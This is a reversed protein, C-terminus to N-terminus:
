VTKKFRQTSSLQRTNTNKDKAVSSGQLSLGTTGLSWHPSSLCLQSEPAERTCHGTDPSVCLAFCSRIVVAVSLNDFMVMTKSKDGSGAPSSAHDHTGRTWAAWPETWTGRRSWPVRRWTGRSGWLDTKVASSGRRSRSKKNHKNQEQPWTITQTNWIGACRLIQAIWPDRGHRLLGPAFYCDIWFLAEPVFGEKFEKDLLKDHFDVM